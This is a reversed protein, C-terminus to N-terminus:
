LFETIFRLTKSNLRLKNFSPWLSVSRFPHSETKFNKDMTLIHILMEIRNSETNRQSKNLLCWDWFCKLKNLEFHSCIRNNFILNPEFQTKSNIWVYIVVIHHNDHILLSSDHIESCKKKYNWHITHHIIISLHMAESAIIRGRVPDSVSAFMTRCGFGWDEMAYLLKEDVIILIFIIFKINSYIWNNM